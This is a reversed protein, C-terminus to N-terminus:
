TPLEESSIGSGKQRMQPLFPPVLHNKSNTNSKDLYDWLLRVTVAAERLCLPCSDPIHTTPTPFRGLTTPSYPCTHEQSIIHPPGPSMQARSPYLAGQQAFKLPTKFGNSGGQGERAEVGCLVLGGGGRILHRLVVREPGAGREESIPGGGMGALFSVEPVPGTNPM